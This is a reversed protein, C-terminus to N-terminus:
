RIVALAAIGALEVAVTGLSGLGVLLARWAWVPRPRRHRSRYDYPRVRVPTSRVSPSTAVEAGTSWLPLEGTAIAADPHADALRLANLPPLHRAYHSLNGTRDGLDQVFTDVISPHLIAGSDTPGPAFITTM